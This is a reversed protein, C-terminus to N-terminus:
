EPTAALRALDEGDLRHITWQDMPRAGISEYFRIAPTNWNIVFWEMRACGRDVAIRALRKLLAKGLGAGRSEPRVFLDELYLGPRGTWSSFNLFFLALGCVRGDVEGILCESLPRRGHTDGFLAATMLEPTAVAQEPAREYEALDRVLQLIVPVDDRTAPRISLTPM